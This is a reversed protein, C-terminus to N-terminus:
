LSTQKKLSVGLIIHIQLKHYYSEKLKEVMLFWHTRLQISETKDLQIM